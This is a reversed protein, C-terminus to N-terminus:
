FERGLRSDVSIPGGGRLVFGLAVLGWLLPVEVGGDTWYFGNPLHVFFAVVMFITIAAAVPRTLLGIALMVGGFFELAGVVFAWFLGPEFGMGAFAQGTATLGNGGFWGFLKGAGHPVLILGAAARIIVEGWPAAREYVPALAPVIPRAGEYSGGTTDATRSM